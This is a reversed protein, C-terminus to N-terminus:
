FGHFGRVVEQVAVPLESFVHDIDKKKRDEIVWGKEDLIEESVVSVSYYYHDRTGDKTVHYVEAGKKSRQGYKLNIHWNAGSEAFEPMGGAKFTLPADEVLPFKTEGKKKKKKMLQATKERVVQSREAGGTGEGHAEDTAFVEHDGVPVAREGTKPKNKLLPVPSFNQQYFQSENVETPIDIGEGERTREADLKIATRKLPSKRQTGSQTTYRKERSFSSEYMTMRNDERERERSVFRAITSKEELQLVQEHSFDMM